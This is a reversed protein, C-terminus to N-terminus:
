KRGKVPYVAGQEKHRPNATCIYVEDEPHDLIRFGASRLMAELLDPTGAYDLVWNAMVVDYRDEVLEVYELAPLDPGLAIRAAGTLTAFDVILEPSLRWWGDPDRGTRWDPLFRMAPQRVRRSGSRLPGAPRWTIPHAAKVRTM